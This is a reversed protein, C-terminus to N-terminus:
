IPFEMAPTGKPPDSPLYILALPLKILFIAFSGLSIWISVDVNSLEHIAVSVSIAVVFPSFSVDVFAVERVIVSM